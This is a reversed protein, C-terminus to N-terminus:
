FTQTNYNFNIGYEKCYENMNQTAMSKNCNSCIPLLNSLFDSGGNYRSVIHGCEYNNIDINNNCCPCIGDISKGNLKKWVIFRINKPISGKKRKKENVDSESDDSDYIISNEYEEMWQSNNIWLNDVDNSLFLPKCNYKEAKEMCLNYNEIQIDKINNINVYQFYNFLLKGSQYKKCSISELIEDLLKEINVNPKRPYKAKSIYSKYEKKFRFLFDDLIHRKTIDNTTKIIYEPVPESKNILCFINEISMLNTVIIINLCIKYDPKHLYIKKIAAFRHQGDVVFLKNDLKVLTLDGLFCFTGTKKFYNLQYNVIEDVRENNLERQILPNMIDLSVLKEIMCINKTQLDDIKIDM